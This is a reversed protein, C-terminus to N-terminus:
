IAAGREGHCVRIGLSHDARYSAFTNVVDHHNALPM